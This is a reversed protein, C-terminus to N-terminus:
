ETKSHPHFVKNLEPLRLEKIKIRDNYQFKHTKFSRDKITLISGSGIIDESQSVLDDIDKPSIHMNLDAYFNGMPGAFKRLLQTVIKTTGDENICHSNVVGFTGKHDKINSETYVPFEIKDLEKLHYIVYYEHNNHLYTLMIRDEDSYELQPVIFTAPQQERCITEFFERFDEEYTIATSPFSLDYTWSTYVIGKRIPYMYRQYSVYTDLGKVLVMQLTRKVPKYLVDFLVFLIYSSFFAKLATLAWDGIM